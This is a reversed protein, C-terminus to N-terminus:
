IIEGKQKTTDNITQIKTGCFRYDIRIPARRYPQFLPSWLAKYKKYLDGM